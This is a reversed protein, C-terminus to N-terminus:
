YNKTFESIVALVKDFDSPMMKGVVSKPVGASMSILRFIKDHTEGKWRDYRLIQLRSPPKLILSDCMEGRVEVSRILEIKVPKKREEITLNLVGDATPDSVELLENRKIVRLYNRSEM